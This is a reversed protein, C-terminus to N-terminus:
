LRLRRTRYAEERVRRSRSNEDLQGERKTRGEEEWTETDTGKEEGRERFDVSTSRDDDHRHSKVETLELESGM